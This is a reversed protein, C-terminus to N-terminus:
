FLHCICFPLLVVELIATQLRMTVTFRFSPQISRFLIQVCKNNGLAVLAFVSIVLGPGPYLAAGLTSLMQLCTLALAVYEFTSDSNMTDASVQFKLTSPFSAM